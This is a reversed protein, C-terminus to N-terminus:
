GATASGCGTIRSTASRASSPRGRRRPTRRRATTSRHPSGRTSSCWERCSRSGHSSRTSATPSQGRRRSGARPESEGPELWEMGHNGAILIGPVGTLRRADLPARGTIIAVVTSGSPSPPSRATPARRGPPRTGPDTVIPSLTGDFDTLLGAPAEALADRALAIARSLSADTRRSSEAVHLTEGRPRERDDQPHRPDGENDDAREVEIGLRRRGQRGIAVASAWGPRRPRRRRWSGTACRRRRARARLRGLRRGRRGQGVVDDGDLELDRRDADVDSTCATSWRRSRCSGARRRRRCGTSGAVLGAAVRVRVDEGVRQVREELRQPVHLDAGLHQDSTPRGPGASRRSRPAGSRRRGPDRRSGASLGGSGGSASWIWSSQSAPRTRSAARGVVLPERELGRLAVVAVPALEHDHGLRDPEHRRRRAASRRRAAASSGPRSAADGARRGARDGIVLRLVEAAEGQSWTELLASWRWRRRRTSASSSRAPRARRGARRAAGSRQHARVARRDPEPRDLDLLALGVSM